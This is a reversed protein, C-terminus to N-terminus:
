AKKRVNNILTLVGLVAMGIKFTPAPIVDQLASFQDYLLPSVSLAAILWTQLWKWAQKWEDALRV